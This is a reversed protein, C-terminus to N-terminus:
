SVIKKYLQTLEEKENIVDNATAWWSVRNIYYLKKNLNHYWFCKPEENDYILKDKWPIFAYKSSINYWKKMRKNGCIYFDATTIFKIIFQSLFSSRCHPSGKWGGCLMRQIMKNILTLVNDIPSFVFISDYCLFGNYLRKKILMPDMSIGHKYLIQRKSRRDMDWSDSFISAPTRLDFLSDISSAVIIFPDLYVVKDYETLSLCMLLTLDCGNYSIYDVEILKNYYISLYRRNIDDIDRTIICVLDYKNINNHYLSYGLTMVYKIYDNVSSGLLIACFANKKVISIDMM